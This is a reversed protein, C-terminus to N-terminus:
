NLVAEARATEPTKGTWAHFARIFSNPDSYGLLFSIETSSYRPNALYHGALETRLGILEQQFSSGEEGLRRQLTRTSVGLRRATDAMSTRGSALTEMLCARVKERFDAASELDALQARLEPELMSWLKENATLFPRAADEASFEVITADAITFPIGLFDEMEAQGAIPAKLTATLPVIHDRTAIRAMRTFYLAELAMLSVPPSVGEPFKDAIIRTRDPHQEIELTHPGVLPKFEALRAIATNFDACSFCAFLPTNGLAEMTIREVIRLPYAPDDIMVGAEEWFRFYEDVSLTAQDRTFLDRPLDARRLLDQPPIGLDKLLVQWGPAIAFTKARM